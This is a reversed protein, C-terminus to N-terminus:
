ETEDEKKRGVYLKVVLSARFLRERSYYSVYNEQLCLFLINVGALSTNLKMSDGICMLQETM